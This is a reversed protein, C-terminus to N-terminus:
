SIDMGGGMTVGEEGVTWIVGDEDPAEAM